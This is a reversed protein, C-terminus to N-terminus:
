KYNAVISETFGTMYAVKIEKPFDYKPTKRTSFVVSETGTKLVTVGLSQAEELLLDKIIELRYKLSELEAKKTKAEKILTRIENQTM